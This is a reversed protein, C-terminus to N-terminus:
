HILIGNFFLPPLPPFLPIKKHPGVQMLMRMHMIAANDQNRFPIVCIHKIFIYTMSLLPPIETHPGLNSPLQM